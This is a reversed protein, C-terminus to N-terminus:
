GASCSDRVVRVTSPTPAEVCRERFGNPRCGDVPAQHVPTSWKSPGLTLSSNGAGQPEQSIM